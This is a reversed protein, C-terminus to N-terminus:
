FLDDLKDTMEKQKNPYLHGYVDITTKVSYKIKRSFIDKSSPTDKYQFIYSEDSHLINLKKFLDEQKERWYDLLSFLKRNIRIRRISNKTKPLTVIFEKNLYTASKRVDIEMLIRDIDKWQLASM